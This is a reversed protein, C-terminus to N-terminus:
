LASPKGSLITESDICCEVTYQSRSIVVEKQSLMPYYFLMIRGTSFSLVGNFSHAGQKYRNKEYWPIKVMDLWMYLPDASGRHGLTESLAAQSGLTLECTRTEAPDGRPNTQDSYLHVANKSPQRHDKQM